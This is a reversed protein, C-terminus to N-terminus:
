QIREYVVEGGVITLLSSGDLLSFGTITVVEQIGPTNLIAESMLAAVEGTRELSAADPLQAGAFFYGQDETPLFGTPLAQFGWGSLVVLAAFIAMSLGIRGLASRVVGAYRESARDFAANFAGFFGAAFGPLQRTKDGGPAPEVKVVDAGLDALVLGASPGMINQCFELVHLGSLPLEAGASTAETM